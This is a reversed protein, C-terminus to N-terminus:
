LDFTEGERALQVEGEVGLRAADDTAQHALSQLQGDDHGPDHHFM